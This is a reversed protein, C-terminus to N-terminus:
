APAKPRLVMSAVLGFILGWFASSIGALSIGSATVLFAVIAADREEARLLAQSLSNAITPLLALGAIAMLFSPPLVAFLSGLTAGLLGLVLYFGGAWMAARYRAAPDPDADPSMCIAATIAALNYQFGGFPGLVIGTLGLVRLLPSIPTPYGNARLVALGPVNQSTMTVVFLPLAVGLTSSWTFSPTIFVPTAWQWAISAPLFGKVIVLWGLGGILAAPVALRADFRRALLYVVFMTLVLWADSALSRFADLGFRLLVGALMASALAAPLRQMVRDFVGLLGTVAVFASSVVFVGVSESVSLGGLSSALLAAGPTSWATLIPARTWWSLGICTLGMGLGLAWLWSSWQEPSVGAAQAAQFVIAVSSSYGVLVAVFGATLHALNRRLTEIGPTKPTRGKGRPLEAARPTSRM